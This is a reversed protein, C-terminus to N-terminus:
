AAEKQADMWDAIRRHEGSTGNDKLRNARNSIVAVNGKVYGLSPIIKDLSPSSERNAAGYALKIGLIPCFEPIVADEETLNFPLNFKNARDKARALLYKPPYATHNKEKNYCNQCLKAYGGQATRREHVTGCKSCPPPFNIKTSKRKCGCSKTHGSMVHILRIPKEKGCECRWWWYFGKGPQWRDLRVATLWNFTQGSIDEFKAKSM